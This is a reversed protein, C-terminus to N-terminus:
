KGTEKNESFQTGVLEFGDYTEMFTNTLAKFQDFFIYFSDVRETPRSRLRFCVFTMERVGNLYPSSQQINTPVNVSLNQWGDHNVLGFSLTHVRGWCDRVLMELEYAYGAGWVWMDVRTVNGKFPIEYPVIEDGTNKKTPVIDIYNNGKRDFKVEVGMIKYTVGEGAQQMVRLAHPMGDFFKLVPSNKITYKNTAAYWAWESADPNDFNEIIYTEYNVSSAQAAVPVV